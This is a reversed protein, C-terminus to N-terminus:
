EDDGPERGAKQLERKVDAETIAGPLPADPLTRRQAAPPFTGRVWDYAMLKDWSSEQLEARFAAVEEPHNKPNRNAADRWFQRSFNREKAGLTNDLEIKGPGETYYISDRIAQWLMARREEQHQRKRAQPDVTPANETAGQAFRRSWALDPPGYEREWEAHQDRKAEFKPRLNLAADRLERITPFEADFCLLTSSAHEVSLSIECLTEVFPAEGDGRPYGRFGSLTRLLGRAVAPQLNNM